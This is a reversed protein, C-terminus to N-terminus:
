SGHRPIRADTLISVHLTALASIMMAVTLWKAAGRGLIMQLADSAVHSSRAVGPFGLVHLYVWNASVYVAMVALMGGVLARPINKSPNAVEEGVSGLLDWGKFAWMVPVLASLFTGIHGRAFSKSNPLMTPFNSRQSFLGLAVVAILAIVKLSSAILQIRGGTRVSLCNIATFLVVVAAAL